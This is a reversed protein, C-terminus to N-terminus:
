FVPLQPARLYFEVKASARLRLLLAERAQHERARRVNDKAREWALADGTAYAPNAGSYEAVDEERIPKKPRLEAALLRDISLRRQQAERALLLETVYEDFQAKAIRFYEERALAETWGALRRLEGRTVPSDGIKAEATTPDAWKPFNIFYRIRE